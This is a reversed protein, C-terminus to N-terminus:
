QLQSRVSDDSDCAINTDGLKRAAIIIQGSVLFDKIIIEGETDEEVSFTIVYM